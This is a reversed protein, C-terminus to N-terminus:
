SGGPLTRRLTALSSKGDRQLKALAAEALERAPHPRDYLPEAATRELLERTEAEVGPTRQDTAKGTRLELATRILESHSENRTLNLLGLMESERGEPDWTGDTRLHALPSRLWSFLTAGTARRLADGHRALFVREAVEQWHAELSRPDATVQSLRDLYDLHDAADRESGLPAVVGDVQETPVVDVGVLDGDAFQLDALLGWQTAPNARDFYWNGLSYCIPAGDYTEWGQPVHPHHGVVADAGADVFARLRAQRGPPPFPVEEIGGHAVVVVADHEDAARAVRPAVSPHGGWATGPGGDAVGFERECVSFVAVETDGVTEVLPDLAAEHDDGAGVTALAADHCAATTADLGDPGYDLLHNNALTVADFGAGSVAAPGSQDLTLLPGFKPAPDAGGSLPAELNAVALDSERVAAALSDALLTTTPEEVAVDGAVLLSAADGDAGGVDITARPFSM